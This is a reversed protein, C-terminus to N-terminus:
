YFEEYVTFEQIGCFTLIEQFIPESLFNHFDFLRRNILISLDM